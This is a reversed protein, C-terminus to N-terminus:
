RNVPHLKEPDAQAHRQKIRRRGKMLQGVARGKRQREAAAKGKSSLGAMGAAWGFVSKRM